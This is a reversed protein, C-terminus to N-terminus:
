NAKSGITASFACEKTLKLLMMKLTSKKAFLTLKKMFM